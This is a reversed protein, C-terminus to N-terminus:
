VYIDRVIRINETDWRMVVLNKADVMILLNKEMKVIQQLIFGTRM